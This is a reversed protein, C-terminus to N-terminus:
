WLICLLSEPLPDSLSTELPVPRIDSHSSFGEVTALGFAVGVLYRFLKEFRKLFDVLGLLLGYKHAFRPATPGVDRIGM